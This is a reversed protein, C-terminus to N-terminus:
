FPFPHVRFSAELKHRACLALMIGSRRHYASARSHRHSSHFQSDIATPLSRRLQKRTATPPTRARVPAPFGVARHLEGHLVAAPHPAAPHVLGPRAVAAHIWTQVCVASPRVHPTPKAASRASAAFSSKMLGSGHNSRPRLAPRVYTSGVHPACRRPSAPAVPVRLFYKRPKSMCPGPPLPPPPPFPAPAYNALPVTPAARRAAASDPAPSDHRRTAVSQVSCAAPNSCPPAPTPHSQPASPPARRPHINRASSRDPTDEIFFDPSSPFFGALSIEGFCNGASRAKM